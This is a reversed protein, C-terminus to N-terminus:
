NINYIIGMTCIIYHNRLYCCITKKDPIFGVPIDNLLSGNLLDRVHLHGNNYTLMEKRQYDIDLLMNDSLVFTAINSFDSCRKISFRTGDLLALQDPNSSDFDYFKANSLILSSIEVFLSGNLQLLRLTDVDSVFCYNGNPAIKLGTVVYSNAKYTAMASSTSFDYVVIGGYHLNVIGTAVDSVPVCNDFSPYEGVYSFLNFTKVNTLNETNILRVDYSCPEFYTAYNGSPSVRLNLRNRRSCNIDPFVNQAIVKRQALSYKYIGEGQYYIFEDNNILGLYNVPASFGTGSSAYTTVTINDFHQRYHSPDKKPILTLYIYMPQGFTNDVYNYATDKYDKTTKVVVTGTFTTLFGNDGDASTIGRMWSIIFTDVANYYKTKEYKFTYQNTGTQLYYTKPFDTGLLLSGWPILIGDLTLVKVEYKVTQGFYASDIFEPTGVRKTSQGCMDTRNIVYEKLDPASYKTLSLNLFGNKAFSSVQFTYNKFVLLKWKKSTVMSEIGLSDAISGTGSRTFLDMQLEHWGDALESFYIFFSGRTSDVVGKEIGDILLRIKKVPRALSKFEFSINKNQHLVITDKQLNLQVTQIDFPPPNKNVNREFEENSKYECSYLSIVVAIILLSKKKFTNLIKNMMHNKLPMLDITAFLIIFYITRALRFRGSPISICKINVKQGYRHNM